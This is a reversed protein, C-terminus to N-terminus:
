KIYQQVIGFLIENQADTLTDNSYILSHYRIQSFIELCM